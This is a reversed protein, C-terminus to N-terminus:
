KKSGWFHKRKRTASSRQDMNKKVENTNPDYTGEVMATYDGDIINTDMCTGGYRNNSDEEWKCAPILAGNIGRRDPIAADKCLGETKRKECGKVTLGGLPGGCDHFKLQLGLGLNSTILVSYVLGPIYYYVTLLACIIIKFFGSLGYAMFIGLPPCIITGIINLYGNATMSRYCRMNRYKHSDTYDKEWNKGGKRHVKHHHYYGKLDRNDLYGTNPDHKIHHHPEHPLGWMGGRFANLLSESVLRFIHIFVDAIMLTFLKVIFILLKIMSRVLSIPNLWMIIITLADFVINVINVALTAIWNPINGIWQLAEILILFLDVFNLVFNLIGDVLVMFLDVFNVFFSTVAKFFNPIAALAPIYFHEVKNRNYTHILNLLVLITISTITLKNM